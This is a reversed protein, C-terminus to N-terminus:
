VCILQNFFIRNQWLPVSNTFTELLAKACITCFCLSLYVWSGLITNGFYSTLKRQRLFYPRDRSKFGPRCKQFLISQGRYKWWLRSNISTDDLLCHVMFLYLCYWHPCFFTKGLQSRHCKKYRDGEPFCKIPVFSKNPRIMEQVKNKTSCFNQWFLKRQLIVFTTLINDAFHELKLMKLKATM